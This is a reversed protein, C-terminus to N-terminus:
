EETNDDQEEPILLSVLHKLKLYALRRESKSNSTNFVTDLLQQAEQNNM